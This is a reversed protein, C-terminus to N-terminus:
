ESKSNVTYSHRCTDLLREQAIGVTEMYYKCYHEIGGLQHCSVSVNSCPPSQLFIGHRNSSQVGLTERICLGVAWDSHLMCWPGGQQKRLCVRFGDIKKMDLLLGRSVLWGGGGMVYDSPADGIYVPKSPELTSVFQLLHKPNIATDDDVVLLFDPVSNNDLFQVVASLPRKQACWWGLPKHLWAEHEKIPYPNSDNCVICSETNIETFFLIEFISGLTSNQLKQYSKREVSGISLIVVRSTSVSKGPTRDGLVSAFNSLERYWESRNTPKFSRNWAVITLSICSLCLCMRICQRAPLLNSYKRGNSMPNIM